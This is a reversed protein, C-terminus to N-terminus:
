KKVLKQTIISGDLLIVRVIYIGNVLDILSLRLESRGNGSKELVVDGLVSIIEVKLLGSVCVQLDNYAPNPYIKVGNQKRSYVNSTICNNESGPSAFVVFGNRSLGSDTGAKQWHLPDSNDSNPDCLIISYGKGDAESPWDGSNDYFVYDVLDGDIGDLLTLAEGSNALAGSWEYTDAIKFFTELEAKDETLVIYEGAQMEVEGFTFDIGESFTYGKLNVVETGNNYLEIFEIVDRGSEPPNYMIESIVVQGIACYFTSLVTFLLFVRKM